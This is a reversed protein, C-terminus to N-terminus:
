LKCSRPTHNCCALLVKGPCMLLMQVNRNRHVELLQSQSRKPKTKLTILGTLSRGRSHGKKTKEGETASSNVAAAVSTSDGSTHTSSHTQGSGLTDSFAQSASPPSQQVDDSVRRSDKPINGIYSEPLLLDPSDSSNRGENSM